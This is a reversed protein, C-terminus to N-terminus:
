SKTLSSNRHLVQVNSIQGVACGFGLQSIDELWVARHFFDGEDGVAIRPLGTSKPKDFHRISTFGILGDCREVSGIQASARQGDVLGLWLRIARSASAATSALTKATSAASAAATPAVVVTSM